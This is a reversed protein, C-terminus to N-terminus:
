VYMEGKRYDSARVAPPPACIERFECGCPGFRVMVQFEVHPVEDDVYHWASPAEWYVESLDAIYNGYIWRLVRLPSCGNPCLRVRSHGRVRVLLRDLPHLIPAPLYDGPVFPVHDGDHGYILGCPNGQEDVRPCHDGSTLALTDWRGHRIM